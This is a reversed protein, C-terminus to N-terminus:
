PRGSRLSRRGPCSECPFSNEERHTRRSRLRCRRLTEVLFGEANTIVFFIDDVHKAHRHFLGHRKKVGKRFDGPRQFDEVVDAHAVDIEALRAVRKGAAFGLADFEGVLEALFGAARRKVHEVLRGGAQMEDVHFLQNMNEMAQDVHAVRHDGDLM